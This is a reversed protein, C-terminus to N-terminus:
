EKRIIGGQQDDTITGMRDIDGSTNYRHNNPLTQGILGLIDAAKILINQNNSSHLLIIQDDDDIDKKSTSLKTSDEQCPSSSWEIASRDNQLDYVNQM